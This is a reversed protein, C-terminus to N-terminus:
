KREVRTLGSKVFKQAAAQLKAPDLSLLHKAQATEYDGTAATEQLFATFADRYQAPGAHFLSAYVFAQASSDGPSGLVLEDFRVVTVPCAAILDATTSPLPKGLYTESWAIRSEGQYLWELPGSGYCQAHFICSARQAINARAADDDRAPPVIFMRGELPNISCAGDHVASDGSITAAVQMSPVVVVVIPNSAPKPVPGHVRSYRHEADLLTRHVAEVEAAKVSPHVFYEYGDRLVQKMGEPRAPYQPLTSTLSRAAAFCADKISDWEAPDCELSLTFGNRDLVRYIWVHRLTRAGDPADLVLHPMPDLRVEARTKVGYRAPHVTCEIYAQQRENRIGPVHYLCIWAGSKAQPPHATLAFLTDKRQDADVNWDAPLDFGVRHDASERRVPKAPPADGPMGMAAGIAALLAVVAALVVVRCQM